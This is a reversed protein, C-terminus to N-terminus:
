GASILVEGRKVRVLKFFNLFGFVFVFECILLNYRLDLVGHLLSEIRWRCCESHPVSAPM